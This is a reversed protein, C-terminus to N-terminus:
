NSQNIITYHTNHRRLNADDVVLNLFSVIFTYAIHGDLHCWLCVVTIFIATPSLCNNRITVLQLEFSGM